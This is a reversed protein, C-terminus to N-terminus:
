TYDAPLAKIYDTM